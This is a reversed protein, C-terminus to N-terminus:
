NYQQNFKSQRVLKILILTYKGSMIKVVYELTSYTQKSINLLQNYICTAENAVDTINYM